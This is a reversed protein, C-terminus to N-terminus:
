PYIAVSNESKERLFTIPGLYIFSNKNKTEESPAIVILKSNLAEINCFLGLEAISGPSELFIVILSSTKAIDDEFILLDSYTNESLYDKFNEALVHSAELDGEHVAWYELLRGRVSVPPSEKM